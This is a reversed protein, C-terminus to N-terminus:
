PAESPRLVRVDRAGAAAALALADALAQTTAAPSALVTVAARPREALAAALAAPELPRGRLWTRGDPALRLLIAGAPADGGAGAAATGDLPPADRAAALPLATLHLYSATVLFFIVLILLVDVLPTLSAGGGRRALRPLRPASM